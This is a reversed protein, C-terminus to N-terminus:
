RIEAHQQPFDKVAGSVAARSESPGAEASRDVEALFDGWDAAYPAIREALRRLAGFDDDQEWSTHLVIPIWTGPALDIMREAAPLITQANAYLPAYCPLYVAGERWLPGGHFGMLAASEPGGCIVNFRGALVAYQSADFRNFPPVFVRPSDVGAEALRGRGDELLEELLPPSLGCLESRRRVNAFRTRHSTGHQAFTVRDGRMRELVEIEQAGLPRGGSAGVTLPDHTLQPVVSMLHPVGAGAMVDHFKRSMDIDQPRDFSTYYPFEDVRVLFRPAGSAAGGLVSRRAAVLRDLWAHEWELRGLKMALRQAVRVPAPPVRSPTLVGTVSRDLGATSDRGLHLAVNRSLDVSAPM